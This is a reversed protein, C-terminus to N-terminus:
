RSIHLQIRGSAGNYGDVAIAYAVGKQANFVVRSTRVDRASDDDNRAVRTLNSLSDGTYVSLITDFSSGATTITVRGSTPATWTWWVSSGGDASPEGNELTAQNNHGTTDVISGKLATRRAFADNRPASLNKLNIAIRTTNNKENSELIRNRPDAVVELWYRGPKVNTVDVWQDPLSYNYVDAWGVSIGQMTSACSMYESDRPAGPLEPKFAEVDTLCFSVKNGGKIIKGVGNNKTMARLRYSAFEDFHTHSHAPHYTFSGSLRDTTTNDANYIRQMVEQKGLRVRGGRLELPGTGVNGIATTLRLLLRGPKENRDFSWGHMYGRARNAWPVLDPLQADANVAATALPPQPDPAPDTADTTSCLTRSELSELFVTPRSPSSRM